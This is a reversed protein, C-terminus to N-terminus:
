LVQICHKNQFFINPTSTHIGLARTSGVTTTKSHTTAPLHPWSDTSQISEFPSSIESHCAINSRGLQQISPVNSSRGWMAWRIYNKWMRVRAQQDPGHLLAAVRCLRKHPRLTLRTSRANCTRYCRRRAILQQLDSVLSDVTLSLTRYSQTDPSKMGLVKRIMSGEQWHKIRYDRLVVSLNVTYTFPTSLISFTSHTPYHTTDHKASRAAPSALLVQLSGCFYSFWQFSVVRSFFALGVLFIKCSPARLWHVVYLLPLAPAEM